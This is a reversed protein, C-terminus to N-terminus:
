RPTTKGSAAGSRTVERELELEKQRERDWSAHMALEDSRSKEVESKLEKITKQKTYQILVKKKTEAQEITYRARKLNLEDSVLTAKSVFGKLFKRQAWDLRDEARQRDSRALAIEGDITDLDQRFIGEEYEVVAIEAVERTLVAQRYNAEARQTVLQQARWRTKADRTDTKKDKSRPTTQVVPVVASEAPSTEVTEAPKDNGPPDAGLTLAAGPVFIAVGAVFALRSMWPPRRHETKTNRMISELRRSTVEMARVGPIAVLPRLRSKQEVVSLLAPRIAPKCGLGSVVEADCSREREQSAERHVWWLLPHFWWVLQAVLQLKGAVIDGRRIHVLEHAFVLEVQERPNGAATGCADLDHTPVFRFGRAWDSTVDRHSSRTAERGSAAGTSGTGDPIAEDM